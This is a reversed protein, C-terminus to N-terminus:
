ISLIHNVLNDTPQLGLKRRISNRTFDITRTSRNTIEAIEKTSLQLRLLSCLRIEAPSLNPYQNTLATIFNANLEDFRYEFDKWLHQKKTNLKLNKLLQHIEGSSSTSSKAMKELEEKLQNITNEAQLLSYLHGTIEQTRAKLDAALIEKEKKELEKRNKNITRLQFHYVLFVVFLFGISSSIYALLKRELSIIQNKQQLSILQLDQEKKKMIIALEEIRARSQDNFISKQLEVGKKYHHLARSFDGILSDHKSLIFYGDREGSISKYERARNIGENIYPLAIGPQGSELYTEAVGLPIRILNHAAQNNPLHSYAKLNYELADAYKREKRFTSALNHLLAAQESPQNHMESLRLGKMGFHLASDTKGPLRNYAAVLNNHASILNNVLTGPAQFSLVKKYFNIALHTSDINYYVNGLLNYSYPLRMSDNLQTQIEITSLIKELAIHHFDLRLYLSALDYRSKAAGALNGRNLDLELAKELYVSASDYNGERNFLTGLNNNAMTQQPILEATPILKLTERFFNKASEFDGSYWHFIGTSNYYDAKLASRNAEAIPKAAELLMRASDMKEPMLELALKVGAHVRASNNSSNTLVYRLSDAYSLSVNARTEGSLLLFIVSLVQLSLAKIHTNYM